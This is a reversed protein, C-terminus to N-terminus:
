QQMAYWVLVAAAIVLMVVIAPTTIYSFEDSLNVYKPEQPKTRARM